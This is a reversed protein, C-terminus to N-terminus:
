RGTLRHIKQIRDLHRGGDFPTDLFLRLMRVALEPETTRGGFAILNADNHRRAMEAMYESTCLAARVGSVKNATIMAGIGTGCLVVGRECVGSSVATAVRYSFDAYDVSPAEAYCGFDVYEIANEELWRRLEQKLAYGAHDSGIALPM